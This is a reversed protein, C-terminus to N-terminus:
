HLHLKKPYNEHLHIITLMIKPEYTSVIKWNIGTFCIKNKNNITLPTCLNSTPKLTTKMCTFSHYRTRMITADFTSVIKRVLQNRYFM